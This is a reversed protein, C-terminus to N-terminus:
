IAQRGANSRRTRPGERQKRKRYARSFTRKTSRRRRSYLLRSSAYAMTKGCCHFCLRLQSPGATSPTSTPRKRWQRARRPTELTREPIQPAALGVAISSAGAVGLLVCAAVGIHIINENDDNRQQINNNITTTTIIVVIM